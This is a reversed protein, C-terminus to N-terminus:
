VKIVVPSYGNDVGLSQSCSFWVMVCEQNLRESAGELAKQNSANVLELKALL